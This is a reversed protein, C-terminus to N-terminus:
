RALYAALSDFGLINLAAYGHKCVGRKLSDIQNKYDQCDCTIATDTATVTYVTDRGVARFTDTSTRTIVVQRASEKRFAVFAAALSKKSVFRCRQGAVVIACVKWMETISKIARYVTALTRAANTRNSYIM